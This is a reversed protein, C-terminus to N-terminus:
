YDPKIKRVEDIYGQIQTRITFPSQAKKIQSSCLDNLAITIANWDCILQDFEKEADSLKKILSSRMASKHKDSQIFTKSEVELRIYEKLQRPYERCYEEIAAIITRFDDSSLHENYFKLTNLIKDRASKEIKTDLSDIKQKHLFEVLENTFGIYDSVEHSGVSTKDESLGLIYDSTVGFQNCIIIIKMMDPTKKGREYDSVTQRSVGLLEGMAKQTYGKEKRLQLLRKSTIFSAEM